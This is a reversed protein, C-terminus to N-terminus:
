EGPYVKLDTLTFAIDGDSSADTDFLKDFRIIFLHSDSPDSDVTIVKSAGANVRTEDEGSGSAVVTIDATGTNTVKYSVKYANSNAVVIQSFHDGTNNIFKGGTLKLAEYELMSLDQLDQTTFVEASSDPLEVEEEEEIEVEEENQAELNDFYDEGYRDTLLSYLKTQAQEPLADLDEIVSNVPYKETVFKPAGKSNLLYVYVSYDSVTFAEPTATLLYGKLKFGQGLTKSVAGSKTVTMNFHKFYGDNSVLFDNIQDFVAVSAANVKVSPHKISNIAKLDGTEVATMYKTIVALQTKSPATSTTAAFAAGGNAMVLVFLLLVSVIKKM